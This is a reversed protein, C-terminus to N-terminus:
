AEAPHAAASDFRLMMGGGPAGGNRGSVARELRAM